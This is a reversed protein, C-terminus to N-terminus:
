GTARTSPSRRGRMHNVHFRQAANRQRSHRDRCATRMLNPNMEALVPMGDDTVLQVATKAFPQRGIEPDQRREITREKMGGRNRKIMWDITSRQRKRRREGAIELAHQRPKATRRPYVTM